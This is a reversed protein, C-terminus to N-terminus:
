NNTLNTDYILEMNFLDAPEPGGPDGELGSRNISNLWGRINYEYDVIQEYNGSTSEHLHKKVLEGLENYENTYVRQLNGGNLTHDCSLLRNAHDFDYEMLQTTTHVGDHHTSHVRRVNGQYDYQNSIIDFGGLHNESAVQIVRYLDDYYTITELYRAVGDELIKTKTGTVQGRVSALKEPVTHFPGQDAATFVPAYDSYGHVTNLEFNSSFTYDDYYTVTLYDHTGQPQTTNTYLTIGSGNYTEYRDTRAKNKVDGELTAYDDVLGTIIPRNLHDYKTFFWQGNTRQNGDQTLVLRDWRDYVMVVPAAGPVKKMVMRRREDYQYQFAWRDLFDQRGMANAPFFETTLLAVAAPPIVVRLQDFDDYVYYTEAWVGESEKARKLITQDSKNTFEISEHDDEDWVLTKQLEGPNELLIPATLLQDFDLDIVSVAGDNVTYEFAQTASGIQWSAGPAGQETVRNLANSEFISESYANAEAKGSENLYFLYHDSLAYDVNLANEQYSGNINASTYPLYARPERGVRDYAHPM